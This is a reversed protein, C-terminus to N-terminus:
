GLTMFGRRAYCMVDGDICSSVPFIATFRGYRNCVVLHRDQDFGWRVLAFALQKETKYSRCGDINLISRTNPLEPTELADCFENIDNTVVTKM